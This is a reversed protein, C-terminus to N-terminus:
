WLKFREMEFFHFNLLLIKVSSISSYGLVPFPFVVCGTLWKISFCHLVEKFPFFISIKSDSKGQLTVPEPFTLILKLMAGM